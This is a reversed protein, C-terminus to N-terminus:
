VVKHLTSTLKAAELVFCATRGTPLRNEVLDSLVPQWNLRPFGEKYGTKSHRDSLGAWVSCTWRIEEGHYFCLM